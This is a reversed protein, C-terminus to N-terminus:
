RLVVPIYIHFEPHQCWFGVCLALDGQTYAGVIPQGLTTDLRVDGQALHAGGGAIVGRDIAVSQAGRVGAAAVLMLCLVILAIAMDRRRKHLRNLM